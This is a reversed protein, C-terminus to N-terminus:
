NRSVMLMKDIIDVNEEAIKRSGRELFAGFTNDGAYPPKNKDFDDNFGKHKKCIDSFKEETLKLEEIAKM